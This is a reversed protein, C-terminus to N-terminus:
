ALIGWNSKGALLSHSVQQEVTSAPKTFLVERSQNDQTIAGLGDAISLIGEGVITGVQEKQDEDTLCTLRHYIVAFEQRLMPMHTSNPLNHVLSEIVTQVDTVSMQPQAQGANTLASSHMPVLM